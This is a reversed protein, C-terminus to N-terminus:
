PYIARMTNHTSPSDILWEHINTLCTYTQVCNSTQTQLFILKSIVTNKHRAPLSLLAFAWTMHCSSFSATQQPLGPLCLGQSKSIDCSPPKCDFPTIFLGVQILSPIATSSELKVTDVLRTEEASHRSLDWSSKGFIRMITFAAVHQYDVTCAGQM